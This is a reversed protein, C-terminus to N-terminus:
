PMSTFHTLKEIDEFSSIHFFLEHFFDLGVANIDELSWFRIDVLIPEGEGTEPEFGLQLTELGATPLVDFFCEVTHLPPHIFEFMFRYSNAKVLLNTEELFERQLAQVLTEGFEVGGGPPSWFEGMKGLGLHKVLLIKQDHILLGCVRLRVKHGFVTALQQSAEQHLNM